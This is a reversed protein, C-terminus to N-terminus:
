RMKEPGLMYFEPAILAKPVPVTCCNRGSIKELHLSDTSSLSNTLCTTKYKRSHLEPLQEALCSTLIDAEEQSLEVDSGSEASTVNVNRETVIDDYVKDVGSIKRALRAWSIPIANMLPLYRVYTPSYITSTKAKCIRKVIKVALKEPSVIPAIYESPTKVDSFMSTGLQGPCVLLAKVDKYISVEQRLAEHIGILGAKSAGYAGLGKPVVIGLASAITVIFGRQDSIIGPLFTRMCKLVGNLNVDITEQLDEFSTDAITNLQRRVGANLVIVSPHRHFKEMILESARQLDDVSRVDCKISLTPSLCAADEGIADNAPTEALEVTAVDATSLDTPAGVTDSSSNDYKEDQVSQLPEPHTDAEEGIPAPVVDLSVTQCGKRAFEKLISAGLGHSGGTVVVIDTPTLWTM